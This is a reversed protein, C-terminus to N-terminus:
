ATPAPVPPHRLVAQIGLVVLGCVVAVVAGEGVVQRLIFWSFSADVDWACPGPNMAIPDVCGAVTPGVVIGATAIAGTTFAAAMGAVVALDRPYWRMSAIVAAIGQFLLALLLQWHLFALPFIFEARTDAAVSARLGLRLVVLAALCALGAFLGILWPDFSGRALLPIRLRGGPELFAWPADAVRDRRWRWAALPYLWLAVLAAFVVPKTLVILTYFDRVLQYLWTPGVWAVDSVQDHELASLDRSFDLAARTSYLAFFIGVFIALVGSAFLLGLVNVRTPRSTAALARLWAEGSTGVWALLLVLGVILAAIWPISGPLGRLLTDNNGPVFRDLALEPGLLLGAAFALALPWTPPPTQAEALKAWSGRWIGIGVAGMALPAFVLAALLNVDIPDDVYLVLLRVMSELAITTAIGTGFAVLLGLPFLRRTDNVISLRTQGDPHVRWLRRWLSTPRLPLGGLIRRLAGDEGDPVSARVDAYVERARLVANRTLFVLLALALLRWVLSFIDDVPEDLVSVTFPLVGVLLFAYWLSITAYTLDVDHNRLHALEHRVVARFAPPDAFQRTVLGGNLAIAHNGPRGFALGTPSPDLPNWLWRPEEGLGAERALASLEDVVAPADDRRLPRLHRRRAIWRPILLLIVTAVVLLLATGGLMWWPLAANVDRYCANLANSAAVAADVDSGTFVSEDEVRCALLARAYDGTDIGLVTHLWNWIYLNAGVVAVLLLLFRFTTDSPFVFPSLRAGLPSTVPPSPESPEASV